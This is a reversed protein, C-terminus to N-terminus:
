AADVGTTPRAFAADAGPEAGAVPWPSDAVVCMLPMDVGIKAACGLSGWANSPLFVGGNRARGGIRYQPNISDSASTASIAAISRREAAAQPATVPARFRTVASDAPPM